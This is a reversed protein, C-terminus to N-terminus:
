YNHGKGLSDRIGGYEKGWNDTMQNRIQWLEPFFRHELGKELIKVPRGKLSKARLGISREIHQLHHFRFRQFLADYEALAEAVVYSDGHDYRSHYVDAVEWGHKELYHTKFVDWLPNGM